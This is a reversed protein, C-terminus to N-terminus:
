FDWVTIICSYLLVNNPFRKQDDLASCETQPAIENKQCAFVLVTFALIILIIFSTQHNFSAKTKM